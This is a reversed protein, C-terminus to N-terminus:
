AKGGELIGRLQDAAFRVVALSSGEIVWEAYQEYKETVRVVDGSNCDYARVPPVPPNPELPEDLLVLVGRGTWSYVLGEMGNTLLVRDGIGVAVKVGDIVFVIGRGSMEGDALDDLPFMQIKQEETM